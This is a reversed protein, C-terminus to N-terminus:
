KQHNLSEQETFDSRTLDAAPLLRAKVMSRRGKANQQPHATLPRAPLWTSNFELADEQMPATTASQVKEDNVRSAKKKKGQLKM